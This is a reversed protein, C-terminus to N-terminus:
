LCTEVSCLCVMLGVDVCYRFSVGISGDAPELAALVNSHTAVLIVSKTSSKKADEVRHFVPPSLPVGVLPKYWDVVGAQSQSLALSLSCLGLVVLIRM